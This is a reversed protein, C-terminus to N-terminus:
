AARSVARSSLASGPLKVLLGVAARRVDAQRDAAARDLLPEDDPGLGTALGAIFAARDKAPDASWTSAVLDRGAAPDRRRVLELLERRARRDATTWSAPAPPGASAAIVWDWEPNITALWAARPGLLPLLAKRLADNGDKLLYLVAPISTEPPRRGAQALLRAWETVLETQDTALLEALRRRAAGSVGPRDDDPAQDPATRDAALPPVFGARRARSAAATLRLLRAEAPVDSGAPAALEALGAPASAVAPLQARGMGVVAADVLDPWFTM